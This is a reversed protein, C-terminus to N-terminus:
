IIDADVMGRNILNIAICLLMTKVQKENFVSVGCAGSMNERATAIRMGIANLTRRSVDNAIEGKFTFGFCEKWLNNLAKRAAQGAPTSANMAYENRYTAYAAYFRVFSANRESKDNKGGKGFIRILAANQAARAPKCTEACANRIIEAYDARIAKLRDFADKDNQKANKGRALTRVADYDHVREWKAMNDVRAINAVNIIDAASAYETMANAIATNISNKAINKILNKNSM